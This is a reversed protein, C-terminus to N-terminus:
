ATARPKRATLMQVFTELRTKLQGSLPGPRDAELTLIPLRLRDRLIRDEIRRHCFSQVYHILGDLERRESEARIDEIRPFVGYPYTYRAYQEALSGAPRPMAFQRQTENFVVRAGMAEVFEYLAPVIPPIGCLGLRLAPPDPERASAEGVFSEAATLYGDPDASFDSTSVLWLHNELGAVKGDQWTLADIRAAAARAPALRERWAEAEALDAGLTDALEEIARRMAEPDQRAPYDFALCRTGEHRLVELLAEANACDGRTVGLVTGVGFRRVAGYIGKTWCCCTRPFGAREAREALAAPDDSTVFLNNLDVPLLRAAFIVEVPVTTTIGVLSEAPLDDPLPPPLTPEM